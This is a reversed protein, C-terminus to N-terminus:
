FANIRGNIEALKEFYKNLQNDYKQSFYASAESNDLLQQEKYAGEDSDYYIQNTSGIVSKVSVSQNLDNFGDQKITFKTNTKKSINAPPTM